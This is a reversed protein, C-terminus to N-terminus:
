PTPRISTAKAGNGKTKKCLNYKLKIKIVFELRLGISLFLSLLNIFLAECSEFELWELTLFRGDGSVLRVWLAM